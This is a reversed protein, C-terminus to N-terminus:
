GVHQQDLIPKLGLKGNAGEFYANVPLNNLYFPALGLHALTTAAYYESHPKTNVAYCLKM